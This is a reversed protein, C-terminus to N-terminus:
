ELTEIASKSCTFASQNSSLLSKTSLTKSLSKFPAFTNTKGFTTCPPWNMLMVACFIFNEMLSKAPFAPKTVNVSSIRWPFSWKKHLTDSPLQNVIAFCLKSVIHENFRQVFCQKHYSQTKSEKNYTRKCSRFWLKSTTKHWDIFTEEAINRM